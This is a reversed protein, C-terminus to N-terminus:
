GQIIRLVMSKLAYGININRDLDRKAEEILSVILYIKSSRILQGKKKLTATGIGASLALLLDRFWLELAALFKYAKDRDKLVDALIANIEYFPKAEILMNGVKDAMEVSLNYGEDKLDKEENLSFVICRSLITPLLNEINESLLVITAKGPPEELTKLLRNQARLTMTDADEIIAINRDGFFAKKGLSVQLVQVDEDKVSLGQARLHIVQDKSIDAAFKEALKLKIGEKVGEIIYAHSFSGREVLEDLKVELEKKKM